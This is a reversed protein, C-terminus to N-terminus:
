GAPGRRLWAALANTINPDRFHKCCACQPQVGALRPSRRKLIGTMYNQSVHLTFPMVGGGFIYTCLDSCRSLMIMLLIRGM